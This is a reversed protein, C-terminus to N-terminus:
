NDGIGRIAVIMIWKGMLLGKPDARDIFTFVDDEPGMSVNTIVPSNM